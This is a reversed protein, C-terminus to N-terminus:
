RRMQSGRRSRRSGQARAAHRHDLKARRDDDAGAAQRELHNPREDLPAPSSRGASPRSASGAWRWRRRAPTGAAASSGGPCALPKRSRRARSRDGVAVHHPPERAQASKMPQQQRHGNQRRAQGAQPQGQDRRRLGPHATRQDFAQLIGVTTREGAACSAKAISGIGNSRRQRRCPRPSAASPFRCVCPPPRRAVPAPTQVSEGCRLRVPQYKPLGSHFARARDVTTPPTPISPRRRSGRRQM